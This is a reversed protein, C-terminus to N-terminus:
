RRRGALLDTVAGRRGGAELADFLSKITCPSLRRRSPQERPLVMDVPVIAASPKGHRLILTKRKRYEADNVLASFRAEAMGLSTKRMHGIHGVM